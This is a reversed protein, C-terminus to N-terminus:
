VIQMGDDIGSSRSFICLVGIVTAGAFAPDLVPVPVPLKPNASHHYEVDGPLLKVAHLLREVIDEAAAALNLEVVCAELDVLM